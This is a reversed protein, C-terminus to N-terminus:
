VTSAMVAASMCVVRQLDPAMNLSSGLGGGCRKEVTCWWRTNLSVHGTRYLLLEVGVMAKTKPSGDAGSATISGLM